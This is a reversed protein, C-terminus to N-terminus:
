GGSGAAPREPIAVGLERWKALIEDRGLFGQHRFRERGSADFFIQTPIVRVGYREAPARDQRLDHVEVEFVGAYERELAELIPAMMKCPVCTGAGIDVLRPLPNPAATRAAARDSADQDAGRRLLFAALGLLVAAGVIALRLARSV